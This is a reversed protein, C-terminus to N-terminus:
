SRQLLCQSAQTVIHCIGWGNQRNHLFYTLGQQVKPLLIIINHWNTKKKYGMPPQFFFLGRIEGNVALLAVNWSWTYRYILAGQLHNYSVASVHHILRRCTHPYFVMQAIHECYYKNLCMMHKYINTNLLSDKTKICNINKCLWYLVCPLWYM